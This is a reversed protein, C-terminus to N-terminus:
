NKLSEFINKIKKLILKKSIKINKVEQSFLGLIVL